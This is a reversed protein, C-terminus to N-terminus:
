MDTLKRVKPNSIRHIGKLPLRVDFATADPLGFTKQKQKMWM